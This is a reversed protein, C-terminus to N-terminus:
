AISLPGGLGCHLQVAHFATIGCRLWADQDTDETRTCVQYSTNFTPPEGQVGLDALQQHCAGHCCGITSCNDVGM